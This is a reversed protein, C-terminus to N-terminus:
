LFSVYGTSVENKLRDTMEVEKKPKYMNFQSINPEELQEVRRFYKSTQVDHFEKYKRIYNIIYQDSLNFGRRAAKPKYRLRHKIMLQRLHEIQEPTIVIDM